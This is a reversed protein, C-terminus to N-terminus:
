YIFPPTIGFFRCINGFVATHCNRMQCYLHSRVISVVLQLSQDAASSVSKFTRLCHGGDDSCRELNNSGTSDMNLYRELWQDGKRQSM